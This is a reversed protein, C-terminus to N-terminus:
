QVSYPKPKGSADITPPGDGTYKEGDDSLGYNTRLPVGAQQRM